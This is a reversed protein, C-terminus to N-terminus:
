RAVVSTTRDRMRIKMLLPLFSVAVLALAGVEFLLSLLAQPAPNLGTETFGFFGVTRSLTFGFLAGAVLGAALVRLVPSNSFILLAAVAFSGAGTLLFSPGIVHISRYGNLYLDTHVWGTGAVCAALVLRLVLDKMNM